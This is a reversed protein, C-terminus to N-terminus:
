GSVLQVPESHEVYELCQQGFPQSIIGRKFDMMFTRSDKRAQSHPKWMFGQILKFPEKRCYVLMELPPTLGPVWGEIFLVDLKTGDNPTILGERGSSWGTVEAAKQTRATNAKQVAENQTPASYPVPAPQEDQWYVVYPVMLENPALLHQTNVAHSFAYGMYFALLNENM